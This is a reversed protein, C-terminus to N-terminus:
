GDDRELIQEIEDLLKFVRLGKESLRIIVVNRREGEGEVEGIL